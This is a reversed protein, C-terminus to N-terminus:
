TRTTEKPSKIYVTTDQTFLSLKREKKGLQIGKIDKVQRIASGLGGIIHQSSTTTNPM